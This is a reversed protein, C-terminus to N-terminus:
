DPPDGPHGGDVTALGAYGTPVAGSPLNYGALRAWPGTLDFVTLSAPGAPVLEGTELGLLLRCVARIPGGHTVVLATRGPATGRLLDRLADSVRAQLDTISEGDPPTLDGARWAAYHGDGRAVLEDRTLGTWRGLDAEMWRPDSVSGLDLQDATQACRLLPSRLVPGPLLDEVAQRQGRM